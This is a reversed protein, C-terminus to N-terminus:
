ELRLEIQPHGQIIEVLWDFLTPGHNARALQLREQQIPVASPHCRQINGELWKALEDHGLPQRAYKSEAWILRYEGEPWDLYDNFADLNGDWTVGLHSCFGRNVEVIFSAFDRCNRGDVTYAPKRDPLSM